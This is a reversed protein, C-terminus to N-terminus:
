NGLCAAAGRASRLAVVSTLLGMGCGRNPTQQPGNGSQGMAGHPAPLIHRASGGRSPGAASGTGQPPPPQEERREPPHPLGTGRVGQSLGPCRSAAGRIPSQGM